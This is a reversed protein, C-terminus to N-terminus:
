SNLSPESSTDQSDSHLAGAQASESNKAADDVAKADLGNLKQAAAFLRGSVASGLTDSIAKAENDKYLRVGKEDVLCKVLLRGRLYLPDVEKTVVASTPEAGSGNSNAPVSNKFVSMEFQDRETGNMERLIYWLGDIEEEVTKRAVAELSARNGYKKM